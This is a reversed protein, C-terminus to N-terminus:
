PNFIVRYFRADGAAATSDNMYVVPGTAVLNTVTLWTPSALNDTMELRYSGGITSTWSLRFGSATRAADFIYPAIDADPTFVLGRYLQNVGATALTTVPSGARLDTCVLGSWDQAPCFCCCM